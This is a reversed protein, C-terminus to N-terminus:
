VTLEEAIERNSTIRVILTFVIRHAREYLTHLALEDGAAIARVLAVWDQEPVPAPAKAYLLDGLTAPTKQRDEMILVRSAAPAFRASSRRGILPTTVNELM